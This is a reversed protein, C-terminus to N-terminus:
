LWGARENMIRLERRTIAAEAAAAGGGGARDSLYLRKAVPFKILKLSFKARAPSSQNQQAYNIFKENIKREQCVYYEFLVKAV